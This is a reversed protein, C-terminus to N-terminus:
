SDAWNGAGTEEKTVHPYKATFIVKTLILSTHLQTGPVLLVSQNKEREEMEGSFELASFMSPNGPYGPHRPLPVTLKMQQILLHVFWM